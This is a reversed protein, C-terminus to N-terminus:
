HSMMPTHRNARSFSRADFKSGYSQTKKHRAQSKISQLVFLHYIKDGSLTTRRSVTMRMQITQPNTYNSTQMQKVLQPLVMYRQRLLNIPSFLSQIPRYQPFFNVSEEPLRLLSNRYDPNRETYTLAINSVLRAQNRRKPELSGRQQVM